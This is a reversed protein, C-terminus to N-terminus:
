KNKSKNLSICEIHIVKEKFQRKEKQSNWIWVFLLCNSSFFFQRHYSTAIWIIFITNAISTFTKFCGCSLFDITNSQRYVICKASHEEMSQVHKEQWNDAWIKYVKRLNVSFLLCTLDFWILLAKKYKELYKSNSFWKFRTLM